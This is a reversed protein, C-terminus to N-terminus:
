VTWPVSALGVAHRVNTYKSPMSPSSALVEVLWKWNSWGRDNWRPRAQFDSQSSSHCPDKGWKPQLHRYSHPTSTANARKCFEKQSVTQFIPNSLVM